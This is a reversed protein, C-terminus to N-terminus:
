YLIEKRMDPCITRLLYFFISKKENEVKRKFDFMEHITCFTDTRDPLTITPAFQKSWNLKNQTLKGSVNKCSSIHLANTEFNSNNNRSDFFTVFKYAQLTKKESRNWM